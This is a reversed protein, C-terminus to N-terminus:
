VSLPSKFKPLTARSSTRKVVVSDGVKKTDSSLFTEKERSIGNVPTQSVCEGAPVQMGAERGLVPHLLETGTLNRERSM